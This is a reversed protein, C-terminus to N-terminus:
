GEKKAVPKTFRISPASTEELFLAGAEGAERLEKVTATLKVRIFSPVGADHALDEVIPAYKDLEDAKVSGTTSTTRKFSYFSGKAVKEGAANTGLELLDMARGILVKVYDEYGKLNKLRRAAADAEAKRSAIEDQVGKLWRGLADIGDGSLLAKMEEICEQTELLEPTLEGGNEELALEMEWKLRSIKQILETVKM